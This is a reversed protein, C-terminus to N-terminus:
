SSKSLQLLIRLIISSNLQHPDEQSWNMWGMMDSTPFNLGVPASLLKSLTLSTTTIIIVTNPFEERSNILCQELHKTIMLGHLGWLLVAMTVISSGDGQKVQLAVVATLDSAWAPSLSSEFRPLQARLGKYREMVHAGDGHWASHEKSAYFM